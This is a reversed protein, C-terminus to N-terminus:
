RVTAKVTDPQKPQLLDDFRAAAAEQLGPAIHSYTDLTIAISSHGLREQVIKPHVGQKLMLSAHTHRCDHLRIGTLGCRRVLRIWARTVTDPLVPSGDAHSFVLDDDNLSEKLAEENDILGDDKLSKKLAEKLAEENDRHQRLVLCASPSLAIMRRSRETKPQRFVVEGTRLHHLSRNVSVQAMALDADGWRLALAEGRRMGTFLLLYFLVFYQTQRAAELVMKLNDENLTHMEPRQFHPPDVADAPNRGILGWKLATQLAGHLTAHLDRVSRASLGGKGNLRGGSLKDSYFKQLHEPKLSTLVMRGLGPILHRKIQQARGEFTRPALNPQVYETLWKELFDALTTKGPLVYTDTDRQHLIKTRLKEAEKSSHVTYWKQHRKGTIPDPDLEIIVSWSDKRKVISGRM